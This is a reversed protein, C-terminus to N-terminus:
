LVWNNVFIYILTLCMLNKNNKLYIYELISYIDSATISYIDTILIDQKSLRKLTM